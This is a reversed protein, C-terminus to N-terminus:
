HSTRHIRAQPMSRLGQELPMTPRKTTEDPYFGEPFWSQCPTDWWAQELLGVEVRPM